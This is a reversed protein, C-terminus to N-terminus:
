PDLITRGGGIGCATGQYTHCADPQVGIMLEWRRCSEGGAVGLAGQGGGARPRDAQFGTRTGRLPEHPAYQASEPIQRRADRRAGTRLRRRRTAAASCRRRASTSSRIPSPSRRGPVISVLVYRAATPSSAFAASWRRPTAPPTSCWTSSSATPSRPLSPRRRGAGIAVTSRSAWTRERLVRAPRARTSCRGRARRAAERVADVALGIPGAGVVLVRQGPQSRARPAGRARRHGPVRGDGGPGADARRGQARVARARESIRDHAGDRHVGLVQYQPLLQDQGTPLRHLPRLVSLAHRLGRRGGRLASGARGGRRDGVARAGHRASLCIPSTAPSSTCTPAASASAACACCCRAEGRVPRTASARRRAQRPNDCIVTLM